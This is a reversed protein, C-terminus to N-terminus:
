GLLSGSPVVVEYDDRGFFYQELIAKAVPASRDGHYGKEILIMVAIEPDDAPAYCIFTGNCLETATEPTGTKSAVVISSHYLEFWTSGRYLGWTGYSTGPRLNGNGDYAYSARIMGEKVIAWNKADTEITEVVTPEAEYVTESFDYSMVSKVLHLQMRVGSNALTQVYGALQVPTFANDLQGIASQLVYGPGWEDGAAARTEPSSLQGAVENIEIGTKQGLGFKSAYQNIMDIGLRRGTDYFYVNCSVRLADMVNIYGHTAMCKPNYGTYYYYRGECNVTFASNILGESLGAIAVVPKYISGVTYAGMTARNLLPALPDSALRSYNEQYTSLDYSPYSVMCLIEGTKVDVAVAAGAEAEKGQGAPANANLYKIRAELADYAVKQLEKDITLVVTNGAVAEVTDESSIVDGSADMTITRVGNKGRLYSEFAKEIGSKGVVDNYRYGQVADTTYTKDDEKLQTWENQSVLGTTGIIHPANDGDVYEREAVTAVEVGPLIYAREDIITVLQEDVDSAFTYPNTLSFDQKTMEYRVGVLKRATAEDYDGMAAKGTDPDKADMLYKQKLWYMTQEATAYSNIDLSSKLAAIDSERGELFEYPQGASIPLTDNWGYGFEEMVGILTLLLSNEEGAAIFARNLRVDYGLRNTTFVRGYRDVIEGRPAAVVQTSTYGATALAAYEDGETLQINMARVVYVLIFCATLVALAGFRMRENSKNM